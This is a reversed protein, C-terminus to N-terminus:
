TIIIVVDSYPVAEYLVRVEATGPGRGTYNHFGRGWSSFSVTYEKVYNEGIDLGQTVIATITAISLFNVQFWPATDDEAAIWGGLRQYPMTKSNFRGSAAASFYYYMESSSSLQSDMILGNQMGLPLSQIITDLCCHTPNLVKSQVM